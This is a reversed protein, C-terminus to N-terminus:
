HVQQVAGDPAGETGISGQGVSPALVWNLTANMSGAFFSRRGPSM